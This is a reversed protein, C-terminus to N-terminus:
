DQSCPIGWTPSIAPAPSFLSAPPIQAQAERVAKDAERFPNSSSPFLHMPPFSGLPSERQELSREGGVLPIRVGSFRGPHPGERSWAPQDSSCAQATLQKQGAVTAVKLAGTWPPQSRWKSSEMRFGVRREAGKQAPNALSCLRAQRGSSM